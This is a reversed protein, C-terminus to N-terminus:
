IRKIIRLRIKNMNTYIHSYKIIYGKTMCVFSSRLPLVVITVIVFFSFNVHLSALFFHGVTYLDKCLLKVAIKGQIKRIFVIQYM